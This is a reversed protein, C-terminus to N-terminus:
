SSYATVSTLTAGSDLVYDLTLAAERADNNSYSQPSTGNVHDVTAGGPELLGPPPTGGGLQIVGALAQSYTAGAFPSGASTIPTEGFIEIQRGDSDFKGGEIRLTATLADSIDAQLMLRAGVDNRRPEQEGLTINELYGDAHRHFVAVRGRLSDSFPGSLMLDATTEDNEIDRSVRGTAEFVSTPEAAIMNVAGAVANKGFLIPQPGRLVEVRALDLFPMRAQHGRGRYVGDHYLSVSQEFGQNLGSGIVRIYINNAIGTESMQLNPVYGKLDDLRLIGADTLKEGLVAEVSLPVDRLSADQKQATVVIGELIFDDGDVAQAVACLPAAGLVMALRVCRRVMISMM